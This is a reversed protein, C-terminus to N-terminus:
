FLDKFYDGLGPGPGPAPSTTPPIPAITVIPEPSPTLKVEDLSGKLIEYKNELIDLKQETNTSISNVTSKITDLQNIVSTEFESNNIKNKGFQILEGDLYNVVNDIKEDINKEIDVRLDCNTKITDLEILNDNTIKELRENETKLKDIEHRLYDIERIRNSNNEHNEEDKFERFEKNQDLWTFYSAVDIQKQNSSDNILLDRVNLNNVYTKKDKIYFPSNSENDGSFYFNDNDINAIIEDKNNKFKVINSDTKINFDGNENLYMYSCNNKNCIKFINNDLNLINNNNKLYNDNLNQKTDDLNKTIEQINEYNNSILKNKEKIETFKREVDKKFFHLDYQNNVDSRLLDVKNKIDSLELISDESLENSNEFKKISEDIKTLEDEQKTVDDDQIFSEINYSIFAINKNYEYKNLIIIICLALIILIVFIFLIYYM